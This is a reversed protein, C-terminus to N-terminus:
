SRLRRHLEDILAEWQWAPLVQRIQEELESATLQVIKDSLAAAHSPKIGADEGQVSNPTTEDEAGHEDLKATTARSEKDGDVPEPAPVKPQSEWPKLPEPLDRSYVVSLAQTARTLGVYLLHLGLVADDVIGAPEVLVVADFELGRAEAVPLVVVGSSLSDRGDSWAVREYSLANGIQQVRADPVLIGVSRGHRLHNQAQLVVSRNLDDESSRVWTPEAHASRVPEPILVEVQSARAVPAAVEMVEAPVRYGHKLEVIEQEVDPVALYQFLEDWSSHAWSGIGQALDGLITYYGRRSRRAIMRLEMPTLDQAEDIVILDHTRIREMGNILADFEDILALDSTTWPEDALRQQQPRFIASLEGTEFLDSGLSQLRRESALLERLAQQGSLQPWTRDVLNQFGVDPKIRHALDVSDGVAELKRLVQDALRDRFRLRGQAYPQGMAQVERLTDAVESGALRVTRGGIRLSTEEEPPRQRDALARRLLVQMRLDGKVRGAESDEPTPARVEFEPLRHVATHVVDDDGLGPLVGEVYRIFPMSPGIFLVQDAPLRDRERFLLMSIRQLGIITKGTGPGGQIVLLRELPSRMVQDQAREITEVIDRLRGERSEELARLLADRRVPMATVEDSGFVQDFIDLIRNKETDFQRRLAVGMPDDSTAEYWASAVPAKWSVVLPEGTEGFIARRGIYFCDGEDTDFRGYAVAEEVPGFSGAYSNKHVNFAAGQKPNSVADYSHHDQARQRARERADLARDFYAQESPLEPHEVNGDM